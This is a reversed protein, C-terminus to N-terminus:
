RYVLVPILSHTLVKQTESGLLLGKIGKHGHSAMCILDCEKGRATEIIAEYPYDSTLSLTRCQVGRERAEAEIAALIIRGRAECGKAYEERTDIVMLPDMAVVHFDPAVHIGTVRAGIERAFAIGKKIAAESTASGDSPILIHKFM